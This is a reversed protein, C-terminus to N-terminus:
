QVSKTHKQAKSCFFVNLNYHHRLKTYMKYIGFHAKSIYIPGVHVSERLYILLHMMRTRSARLHQQQLANQQWNQYAGGGEAPLVVLTLTVNKALM